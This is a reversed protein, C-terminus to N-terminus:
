FAPSPLGLHLEIKEVRKDTELHRRDFYDVVTKIDKKIEKVDKKVVTMDKKLGGVDKKLGSVDKKLGKIDPSVSIAKQVVGQIQNLDTKSLM